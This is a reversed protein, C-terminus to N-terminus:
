FLSGLNVAIIESLFTFTNKTGSVAVLGPLVPPVKLRVFRAESATKSFRDADPSEVMFGLNLSLGSIYPFPHAPDVALPTLVPFVNSEFYRDLEAREHTSLSAYPALIVGRSELQPLVDAKLCRMQDAIMPRLRKGIERLQEGPTLGDASPETWGEEMEEKLGSVRIMFFEDVNKSFICLFRLRELLPKEEDLAEELVRRYFEIQSLERNFLLKSPRPRSSALALHTKTRTEFGPEIQLKSIM